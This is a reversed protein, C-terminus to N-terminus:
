SLDEPKYNYIGWECFFVKKICKPLHYFCCPPTPIIVSTKAKYKQYENFVWYREDSYKELRTVGSVFLILVILYIPSLIVAWESGQLVNAV